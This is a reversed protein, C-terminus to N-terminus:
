RHDEQRVSGKRASLDRDQLNYNALAALYDSKADAVERSDIIAIVEGKQVSDGLKKRLEAVTGSVKAAVRGIRDPDPTVAAPVVIRRTLAGGEVRATDIHAAAIQEPTLIVVGEGGKKAASESLSVKRGDAVRDGSQDARINASVLFRDARKRPRHSRSACLPVHDANSNKSPVRGFLERLSGDSRSLDGNPRRM